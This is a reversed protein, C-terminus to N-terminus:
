SVRGIQTNPHAKVGPCQLSGQADVMPLDELQVRTLSLQNEGPEIVHAGHATRKYCPWKFETM